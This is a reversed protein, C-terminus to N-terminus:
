PLLVNSHLHIRRNLSKSRCLVFFQDEVRIQIQNELYDAHSFWLDLIEITSVLFKEVRIVVSTISTLQWIVVCSLIEVHHTFLDHILNVFCRFLVCSSLTLICVVLSNIINWGVVIKSVLSFHNRAGKSLIEVARVLSEVNISDSYPTSHNPVILWIIEFGKLQYGLILIARHDVVWNLSVRSYVWSVKFVNWQVPWGLHSNLEPSSVLLVRIQLSHSLLNSHHSVICSSLLNILNSTSIEEIMM